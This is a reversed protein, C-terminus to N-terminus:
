SGEPRNTELASGGRISVVLVRAPAPYPNEWLRLERPLIMVADGTGLAHKEPGLTLSLAGEVVFAFEERPHPYPHKGSRGGPKLTILVPELRQSTKMPSLAEIEASSWWSGISARDAARVVQGGEGQAAAAFFEGMTVGLAVAIKEMSSISPSVQGNEVQSMFSASFDTQRALERLSLGLETRLRRVHTGVAQQKLLSSM